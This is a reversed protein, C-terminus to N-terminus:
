FLDIDVEYETRLDDFDNWAIYYTHEDEYFQSEDESLDRGIWCCYAAACVIQMNPEEDGDIFPLLDDACTIEEKLMQLGSETLQAKINRIFLDNEEKNFDDRGGDFDVLTEEGDMDITVGRLVDELTKVKAVSNQPTKKYLLPSAMGKKRYYSPIKKGKFLEAIEDPAVHGVFEVRERRENIMWEDAVYVEKVEGDTVSLVYKYKKVKDLSAKWASRTAEYRSGGRQEIASDTTKIIIYDIDDPESYENDACPVSKGSCGVNSPIDFPTSLDGKVIRFDEYHAEWEEVALEYINDGYQIIPSVCMYGDDIIGSLTRNDNEGIFVSLKDADFEEDDSLEVIGDYQFTYLEPCEVVFLSEEDEVFSNSLYLDRFLLPFELDYDDFRKDYADIISKLGHEASYKKLTELYNKISDKLEKNYVNDLNWESPDGNLGEGEEIAEYEYDEFVVEGDEDTVRVEVTGEDISKSLFLEAVIFDRNESLFSNLEEEDFNLNNGKKNKSLLSCLRDFTKGEKGFDYFRFMRGRGCAISVQYSKM